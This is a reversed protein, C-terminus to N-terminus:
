RRTSIRMRDKLMRKFMVPAQNGERMYGCYGGTFVDQVETPCVHETLVEVAHLCAEPM